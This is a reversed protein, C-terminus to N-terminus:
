EATLTALLNKVDVPSWLENDQTAVLRGQRDFVFLQIGHQNVSGGGYNVRLTLAERFEESNSDTTTLLRVKRDFKMGYMSGYRKLVSPSDFRPDFTMGYIGVQQALGSADCASALDGLRKVTVICKKPNACQSYFFSLVFPAGHLDAFRLSQGEQDILKLSKMVSPMRERKNILQLAQTSTTAPADDRGSLPVAKRIREAAEAAIRPLAADAAYTGCNPCRAIADLPALSRHARAGFMSITRIIEYRARTPNSLPYNLEPTTVDVWSDVFDSGLYPEMLPLLEAARDPFTRAAVAAAAVDYAHDGFGLGARVYGYLDDNAVFSGLSALLYGRFQSSQTPLRDAYIAHSEHLWQTLERSISTSAKCCISSVHVITTLEDLTFSKNAARIVTKLTDVTPADDEVPEVIVRLHAHSPNIFDKWRAGTAARVNASLMIAVIVGTVQVVRRGAIQQRM